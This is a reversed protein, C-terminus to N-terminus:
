NPHMHEILLLNSNIENFVNTPGNYIKANIKVKDSLWDNMQLKLEQIKLNLYYSIIPNQNDFKHWLVEIRKKQKTIIDYFGNLEQINNFTKNKLSDKIIKNNNSLVFHIETINKAEILSNIEEAQESDFNISNGLSTVYYNKGQFHNDIVIELHDTPCVFYLHRNM